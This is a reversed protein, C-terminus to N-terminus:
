KSNNLKTTQKSYITHDMDILIFKIMINITLIQDIKNKLLMKTYKKIGVGARMTKKNFYRISKIYIKIIM